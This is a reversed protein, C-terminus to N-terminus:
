MLDGTQLIDVASTVHEQVLSVYLLVFLHFYFWSSQFLALIEFLHLKGQSSWKIIVAPKNCRKSAMHKM